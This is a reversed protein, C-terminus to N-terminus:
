HGSDIVYGYLEARAFDGDVRVLPNEYPGTVKVNATIPPTHFPLRKLRDPWADADARVRGSFGLDGPPVRVGGLEVPVDIEAVIGRGKSDLPGIGGAFVPFKMRRIAKIDRVLGDTVCAAAGRAKSATSLLEGWPAIRPNGSCALVAVEGKRLDDILKIELEYPNGPQVHFMERYMGTRARGLFTLAEDLPRIAPALAQGVLGMNDLTDSVVAVFLHKRAKALLAPTAATM